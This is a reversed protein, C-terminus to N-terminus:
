QPVIVRDAVEEIVGGSLGVKDLVDHVDGKIVNQAYAKAIQVGVFVGAGFAIVGIVIKTTV